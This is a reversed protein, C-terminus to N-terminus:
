LAHQALLRVRWHSKRIMRELRNTAQVAHCEGRRRSPKHSYRTVETANISILRGRRTGGGNLKVDVTDGDAVFTVKGTWILCRPGHAAGPICPGRHRAALATPAAASAVIACALLAISLRRMRREITAM